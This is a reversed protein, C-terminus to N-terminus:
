VLGELWEKTMIAFLEFFFGWFEFCIIKRKYIVVQLLLEHVELNCKSM